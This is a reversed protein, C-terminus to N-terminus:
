NAVAGSVTLDFEIPKGNNYDPHVGRIYLGQVGTRGVPIALENFQFSQLIDRMRQLDYYDSGTNLFRPRKNSTYSVVGNQLAKFVSNELFVKDGELKLNLQGSLRHPTINLGEFATDRLINQADINSTAVLGEGKWVSGLANFQSSQIAVPQDSMKTFYFVGNEFPITGLIGKKIEVRQSSQVALPNISQIKLEATVGLAQLDGKTMAANTIKLVGQGTIKSLPDHLNFAVAGNYFAQGESVDDDFLALPGNYVIQGSYRNGKVSGVMEAIKQNIQADKIILTKNSLSLNYDRGKFAMRGTMNKVQLSLDNLGAVKGSLSAIEGRIKNFMKHKLTYSLKEAKYQIPTELHTGNLIVPSLVTFCHKQPISFVTQHRNFSLSANICGEPTAIVQQGQKELAGRYDMDVKTHGLDFRAKVDGEGKFRGTKIDFSKLSLKTQFDGEGSLSKDYASLDKINLSVSLTSFENDGWLVDGDIQGAGRPLDGSLTLEKNKLALQVNDFVFGHGELSGITLEGAQENTQGNYDWWGTARKAQLWDYRSKGQELTVAMHNIKQDVLDFEARGKAYIDGEQTVFNLTYSNSGDSKQTTELRGNLSIGEGFFPFRITIFKINLDDYLQFPLLKQLFNDGHTIAIEMTEVHKIAKRGFLVNKLVFQDSIEVRAVSLGDLYLHAGDIRAPEGGYATLKKQLNYISLKETVGMTLAFVLLGVGLWLSVRKIM